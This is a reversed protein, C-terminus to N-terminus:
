TQAEEEIEVFRPDFALHGAIGAAVPFPNEYTWIANEAVGDVTTISFYSAEGKFPCRTKHASRELQTVDVDQRPIYRVGPYTAEFLVLARTTNAITRGHWRVNLRKGHPEVHIPHDNGAIGAMHM